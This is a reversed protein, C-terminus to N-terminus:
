HQLLLVQINFSSNISSASYVNEDQALKIRKEDECRIDKLGLEVTDWTGRLTGHPWKWLPKGVYYKYANRPVRM